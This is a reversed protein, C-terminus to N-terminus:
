ARTYIIIGALIPTIFYFSLILMATKFTIKRDLKQDSEGAIHLLNNLTKYDVKEKIAIKLAYDMLHNRAVTVRLQKLRFSLDLVFGLASFGLILLLHEKKLVSFDIKKGVLLSIAGYLVVVYGSRIKWLISDFRALAEHKGDIEIRCLDSINFLDESSRSSNFNTDPHQDSMM